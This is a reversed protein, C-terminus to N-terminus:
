VSVRAKLGLADLRFEMADTSVRFARALMYLDLGDEVLWEVEDSPMLLSAAFQNAFFERPDTGAASLTDRNDVFGREHVDDDRKDVLHGIEHACTFRRRHIHDGSHITIQPRGQGKPPVYLTGSLDDKEEKLDALYVDAGLKTAIITADIPLECEGGVAWHDNLIRAAEMSARKKIEARNETM